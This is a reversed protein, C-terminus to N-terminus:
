GDTIMIQEGGKLKYILSIGAGHGEDFSARYLKRFKGWIIGLYLGPRLLFRDNFVDMEFALPLLLHGETYNKGKLDPLPYSRSIKTRQPINYITSDFQHTYYHGVACMLNFQLGTLFRIGNFIRFKRNMGPTAGAVKLHKRITYGNEYITSDTARGEDFLAM